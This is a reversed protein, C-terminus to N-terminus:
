VVGPVLRLSPWLAIARVIGIVRRWLVIGRMDGGALRRFGLVGGERVASDDRTFLYGDRRPRSACLFM